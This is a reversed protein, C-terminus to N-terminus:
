DETVAKETAKRIEESFKDTEQNAEEDFFKIQKDSLQLSNIKDQMVQCEKYIREANRSDEDFGFISCFWSFSSLDEGRDRAVCNIVSYLLNRIREKILETRNKVKDYGGWMFRYSMWEKFQRNNYAVYGLENLYKSIEREMQSNYFKFSIKKEKEGLLGFLNKITVKFEEVKQTDSSNPFTAENDLLKLEVSLGNLEVKFHEYKLAMSILGGKM